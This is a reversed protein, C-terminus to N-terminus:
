FFVSPHVVSHSRSFSSATKVIGVRLTPEPRLSNNCLLLTDDQLGSFNCRWQEWQPYYLPPQITGPSLCTIFPSKTSKSGLWCCCYCCCVDDGCLLAILVFLIHTFVTHGVNTSIDLRVSVSDETMFLLKVLAVSWSIYICM